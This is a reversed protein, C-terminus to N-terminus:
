VQPVVVWPEQTTRWMCLGDGISTPIADLSKYLTYGCKSINTTEYNMTVENVLILIFEM